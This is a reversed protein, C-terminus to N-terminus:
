NFEAYIRLTDDAATASAGIVTVSGASGGSLIQVSGITRIAGASSVAQAIVFSPARGTGLNATFGAGANTINANPFTFGSTKLSPHNIVFDVWNQTTPADASVVGIPVRNTVGVVPTTIARNNVADYYIVQGRTLATGGGTAKALRFEGQTEVTGSQGAPVTFATIGWGEAGLFVPTDVLVQAGTTNAWTIAFCYPVDRRKSQM